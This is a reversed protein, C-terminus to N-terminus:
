AAEFRGVPGDGNVAEAFRALDNWTEFGYDHAVVLQADPLDLTAAAVDTVSKDRFQPHQWKFRWRAANDGAKVAALLADAQDQYQGLPAGYPLSDSASVAAAGKAPMRAAPHGAAWTPRRAAAPCAAAPRSYRRYRGAM